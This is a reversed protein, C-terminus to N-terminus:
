PEDGRGGHEQCGPEDDGCTFRVHIHGTHGAADRIPAIMGPARPDAGEPQWQIRALEAPSAGMAEAARYLRDQITRSLFIYRVGGEALLSEILGWTALWNVEDPHPRRDEALYRQDYAGRLTPLWIDVDRGSQHSLHPPLRGGEPRSLDAVVLVGSYAYLRRFRYIAAQLRAITSASGYMIAANRRIYLPSEPLQIGGVLSGANPAGLSRAEGVVPFTIGGARDRRREIQPEVWLELIAGAPLVEGLGPNQGRIEARSLGYREGLGGWSAGEEVKVRLRQRPLPPDIADITLMDGPRPLMDPNLRNDAILRRREVRYRAAITALTEGPIVEHIVRTRARGRSAPTDTDVGAGADVDVDAVRSRSRAADVAAVRAAIWPAAGRGDGDGDGGVLALGLALGGVMAAIGLGLARGLSRPSPECVELVDVRWTGLHLRDGAALRHPGILPAHELYLLAGEIGRVCWGESGVELLAHRGAIGPGGLQIGADVDAGVIWRRGHLAVEEAAGRGDVLRLVLRAGGPAPWGLTRRPLRGEPTPDTGERGRTLTPETAERVGSLAAEVKAM